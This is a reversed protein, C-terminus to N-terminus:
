ASHMAIEIGMINRYMEIAYDDTMGSVFDIVGMVKEYPPANKETKFQEPMLVLSKKAMGPPNPDLVGPVFLELLGSMVKYGALEVKIVSHHNYIRQVSIEQIKQLSSCKEEVEDMLTSAYKGQLILDANKKFVDACEMVLANISKARLYAISENDDDLKQLTNKIKDLDDEPRGLEAIVNLFANEVEQRSVIKLKHADEMDIIRYCIDDAAEVLYVFPHRFYSMPEDSQKYMHTDEVISSFIPQESQFFGYKKRHKQSKSVAVSECPYKLISALTTYTLSLGGSMKGKFHHTLIRLANANGEFNTLDSWEKESFFSSLWEGAIMSQENQIFYNSIAKEGSHGFAPNGVDHALCGAGVVGKLDHLYFRQAEKHSSVGKGIFEGVVSGLSRGVSAVELSHTLRNHVFTSSGPLPFVQTKNQLRRFASSFILRDYDRQYDSRISATSANPYGTRKASICNIWNMM